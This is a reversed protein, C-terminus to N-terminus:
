VIFNAGGDGVQEREGHIGPRRDFFWNHAGETHASAPLVVGIAASGCRCAPVVGQGKDGARNAVFAVAVNGKRADADRDLPGAKGVDGVFFPPELNAAQLWAL